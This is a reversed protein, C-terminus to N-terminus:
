VRSRSAKRGSTGHRARKSPSTTGSAELDRALDATYRLADSDDIRSVLVIKM